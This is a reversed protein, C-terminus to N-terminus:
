QKTLYPSQNFLAAVASPVTNERFTGTGRILGNWIGKINNSNEAGQLDLIDISVAGETVQYVGYSPFFYGAGPYGWYFPDYFSGYNGWYGSYDILGSYTNYIRNVSIGLDPDEEREVETYGRAEMQDRVANILALDYPVTSRDTIRGDEIVYVSDVISFTNFSAFNASSDRNTIYIRREEDTLDKLPDKACSAFLMVVALLPMVFQKMKM